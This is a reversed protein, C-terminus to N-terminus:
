ALMISNNHFNLHEYCHVPKNVEGVASSHFYHPNGGTDMKICLCVGPFLPCAM